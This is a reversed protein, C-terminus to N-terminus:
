VNKILENYKYIFHDALKLIDELQHESHVDHVGVVKMGAAKAGQIAAIIDEFVICEEPAVGLKEASLLYVDPFDKGRKTELTTTIADFYDYIGNNELVAKLLKPHNSTALGLKLGKAKLFDLYEKSSEKLKINNAYEFYAMNNWEDMIEELSEKLSFRNKFYEATDRFNLHAIADTLDSPVELGRLKLFDYDVKLWLWMSDVLTGDLDFIAAKINTLM